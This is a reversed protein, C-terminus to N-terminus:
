VHVYADVLFCNRPTQGTTTTPTSRYGLLFNRLKLESDGRNIGVAKLGKKATQVFREAGGNSSPHYASSRIHKIGNQKTFEEFEKSTFDPGNDSVLQIHAIWVSFVM